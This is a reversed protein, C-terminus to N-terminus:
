LLTLLTLPILPTVRSFCCNFSYLPSQGCDCCIVCAISVLVTSPAGLSSVKLNAEHTPIKTLTVLLSRDLSSIETEVKTKLKHLRGNVAFFFLKIKFDHLFCGCM